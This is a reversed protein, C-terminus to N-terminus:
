DILGCPLLANDWCEIPVMKLKIDLSIPLQSVLSKTPTDGGKKNIKRKNM